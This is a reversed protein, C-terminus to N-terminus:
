NICSVRAGKTSFIGPAVAQALSHLSDKFMWSPQAWAVASEKQFDAKFGCADVLTWFDSGSASATPVSEAAKDSTDCMAKMGTVVDAVIEREGGGGM